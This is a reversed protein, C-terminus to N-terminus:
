PLHELEERSLPLDRFWMVDIMSLARYLHPFKQRGRSIEWKLDAAVADADCALLKLQTEGAFHKQLTGQLQAATSFHVFGDAIDVPAGAFLGQSELEAWEEDRLVKYILM